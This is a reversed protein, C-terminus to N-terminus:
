KLKRIFVPVGDVDGMPEDMEKDFRPCEEAPVKCPFMPGTFPVDIGRITLRGCKPFCYNKIIKKQSPIMM